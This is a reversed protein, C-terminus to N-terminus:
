AKVVSYLILPMTLEPVKGMEVTLYADRIVEGGFGHALEVRRGPWKATSRGRFKLAEESFPSFNIKGGEPLTVHVGEASYGEEMRYKVVDGIACGHRRLTSLDGAPIRAMLIGSGENHYAKPSLGKLLTSVDKADKAKFYIEVHRPIQATAFKERFNNQELYAQRQQHSANVLFELQKPTISQRGDTRAMVPDPHVEVIIGDVGTAIAGITTGYVLERRGTIHSPDFIIKFPTNDVLEVLTAIDQGNRAVDTENNKGRACLMVKDPKGVKGASGFWEKLTTNMGNKLLVPVGAEGLALLLSQNQANRAGVQYLDVAYEKFLPIDKQDMIETVIRLGFEEGVERAWKLAKEGHGTWDGANTRPKFAGGRLYHGGAKKVHEAIRELQDKSEIACPGAMLILDSKDTM